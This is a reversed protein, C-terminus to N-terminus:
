WGAVSTAMALVSHVHIGIYIHRSAGMYSAYLRKIGKARLPAGIRRRNKDVRAHFNKCQKIAERAVVEKWTKRAHGGAAREHPITQHDTSLLLCYLVSRSDLQQVRKTM